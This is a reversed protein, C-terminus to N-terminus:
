NTVISITFYRYLFLRTEKPGINYDDDINSDEDYNYLSGSDSDSDSDSDSTINFDSDVHYAADISIITDSNCSSKVHNGEDIKTDKV